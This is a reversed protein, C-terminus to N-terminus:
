FLGYSSIALSRPPEVGDSTLLLGPPPVIRLGSAIAARVLSRATGPIEIYPNPQRALEAQLAAAASAEDRGGLPGIRGSPWRYSYAVPQGDRLWLTPAAETAWFTHDLARDFGYAASDLMALAAPTPESAVLDSSVEVTAPGRFPLIPTTPLLGHKAYLANSVPQISDSITLRRPPAGVLALELLRRGIGLGQHGPDIFLAALFWTEGRVFAASYGVVQGAVEAVLCREGDHRLLHRLKPAFVDLPPPESWDFGHRRLLEGEAAIFVAHEAEVDALTATRYAVRRAAGQEITV